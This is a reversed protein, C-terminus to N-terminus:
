VWTPRTEPLAREPRSEGKGPAHASKGPVTDAGPTPLMPRLPRRCRHGDSGRLVLPTRLYPISNGAPSALGRGRPSFCPSPRWRPWAQAGAGSGMRSHVRSPSTPRHHARRRQLPNDALTTEWSARPRAPSGRTGELAVSFSGPPEVTGVQAMQWRRPPLAQSGQPQHPHASGGPTLRTDQGGGRPGRERWAGWGRGDMGQASDANDEPSELAGGGSRGTTSRAKAPEGWQRTGGSMRTLLHGGPEPRVAPLAPAGCTCIGLSNWLCSPVEPARM